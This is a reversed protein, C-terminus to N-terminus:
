WVLFMATTCMFSIDPDPYSAPKRPKRSTEKSEELSVGLMYSYTVASKLMEIDLVLISTNSNFTRTPICVILLSLNTHIIHEEQRGIQM